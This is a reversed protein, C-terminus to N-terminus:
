VEIKDNRRDEEDFVWNLIDKVFSEAESQTIYPRISYQNNQNFTLFRQKKCIELVKFQAHLRGQRLYHNKENM